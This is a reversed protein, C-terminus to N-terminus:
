FTARLTLRLTRPEVPHFHIDNVPQAEGPLQSEYLYTIDNDRSDFVNFLAASLQIHDTIHYGAELNVLTTPDSRVSDDEILPAEGFHRLRAGGFWGSPHDIALGVSAVSEVAGPIRDGSPDFETFRSRSWALDADLILWSVPNWIAGTEIGRRESERSAETIGADGVFLLESDLKLTWLSATLQLDPLVATRVGVEAGLADVLPNVRDVPTVGDTPDVRITTGRADNSHFGKGVNVFFETESWPGLILSFKPSAISDDASGSNAALSSRVEFDFLDARLGVETRVHESWHTKLTSYASYSSQTVGDERTTDIRRRAVTKYLGVTGIDDRRLEVGVDLEHSLGMFDLPRAWTLQGGYVTRDDFQEFQDGNEADTAYTFNSFLDLRYDIAYAQAHMRGVGLKEYWDAAVSYRHSEGGDTPDVFGFRDTEGSQVARLPIQDTSRWEGDYGQATVIFRGDATDHSYRLLANTKHFREELLWPGNNQSRELAFLLSGGGIEPSAAFLGRMYDDDGSELTVFPKDLATRYRMNVAGAASFNGTEAYYTGKRYEISEVLEPIVFNVDTYGQGHAHTPMNVPVGDVSTALDTGHDLNFGRLFYQNAKGSGSHQTVILGPVVELLEGTRLVPRLDLQESTAVGVTASSPDGGLRELKGTVVVEELWGTSTPIGGAFALSPLLTALGVATLNRSLRM